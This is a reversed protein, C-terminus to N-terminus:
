KNGLALVLTPMQQRGSNRMFRLFFKKFKHPFSYEILYACSLFVSQSDAMRQNIM